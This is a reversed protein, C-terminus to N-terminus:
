PSSLPPPTLLIFAAAGPASTGSTRVARGHRGAHPCAPRGAPGGRHAGGGLPRSLDRVYPRAGFRAGSGGVWRDHMCRVGCFRVAVVLSVLHLRCLSAGLPQTGISAARRHEASEEVGVPGTPM